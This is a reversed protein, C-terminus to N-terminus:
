VSSSAPAAAAMRDALGAAATGIRAWAEGYTFTADEHFLWPVDASDDVAAALLDPITRPMPSGCPVKGQM